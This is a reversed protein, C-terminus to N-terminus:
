RSVIAFAPFDAAKPFYRNWLGTVSISVERGGGQQQGQGRSSGDVVTYTHTGEDFRLLADRPHPNRLRLLSCCDDEDVGAATAAEAGDNTSDSNTPLLTSKIPTVKTKDAALSGKNSLSPPPAGRKEGFVPQIDARAFSFPGDSSIPADSALKMDQLSESLASTSTSSSIISSPPAAAATGLLDCVDCCRPNFRLPQGSSVIPDDLARLLLVRRCQTTQRCFSSVDDINQIQRADFDLTTAGESGESPLPASTPKGKWGNMYKFRAADKASYFCYHRATEGRGRAARGAEQYLNVLSSPISYHVVFKVDPKDVGMGFAITACIIELSGRM